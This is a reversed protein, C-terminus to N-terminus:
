NCVGTNANCFRPQVSLPSFRDQIPDFRIPPLAGIGLQGSLTGAAATVVVLPPVQTSGTELGSKRLEAKVESVTLTAATTENSGARPREGSAKSNGPGGAPNSAAGSAAVGQNQNVPVAVAGPHALVEAKGELTFFQVPISQDKPADIFIETGRVGMTAARARIKVDKKETGQNLILARTRGFNLDLDAVEQGNEPNVGFQTVVMRSDKGLNFVSGKGLLLTARGNKVEVVSGEHVGANKKVPKSDVLVEGEVLGLQGVIKGVSAHALSSMSVLFILHAFIKMKM